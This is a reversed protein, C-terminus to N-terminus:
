YKNITSSIGFSISWKRKDVIDLVKFITSFIVNITILTLPILRLVTSM